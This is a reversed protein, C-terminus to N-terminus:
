HSLRSLIFAYELSDRRRMQYQDSAGLHGADRNVDILMLAGGTDAVRLKALWRLPEAPFVRRDNAATTVLIDPYAQPKVQDYPSYSKLYRYDAENEPNGWELRDSLTLPHGRDMLTTILDVFPVDFIAGRFLDPQRNMAAAVITAGASRGRAFVADSEVYGAEILFNVGDVFDDIGNQKLQLKGAQHWGPGLEGGGRVHIRAIVFNRDLLPLWSHDFKKPLALGYAGYATIFGARPRSAKAKRYMLTVPVRTGDRGRFWKEEVVYDDLGAINEEAIVAAFGTNFDYELLKEPTVYGSVQFRVGASDVDPNAALSVSEGPSSRAIEVMEGDGFDMIYITSGLGSRTQVVLHNTFVEFDQLEGTLPLVLYRWHGGDISARALEFGAGRRNTLIFYEDDLVRIRYRHGSERPSIILPHGAGDVLRLETSNHNESAIVVYRRDRSQRLSVEFSRDPEIFIEARDDGSLDTEFVTRDSLSFYLLQGDNRWAMSAAVDPVSLGLYRGESMDYARLTYRQDGKRDETFAVIRNNPSIAFDGLAFYSSDAALQNLDLVVERTERDSSRRMFRPYQSGAHVERVYEFGDIIVPATKTTTPLQENLERELESRLSSWAATKHELFEQEASMYHSTDIHNLDALYYYPDSRVDGHLKIEHPHVAAM